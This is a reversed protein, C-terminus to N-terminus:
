SCWARSSVSSTLPMDQAWCRHLLFPLSILSKLLSLATQCWLVKEYVATFVNEHNLLDLGEEELQESDAALSEEFIDIQTLLTDHPVNRYHLATNPNM